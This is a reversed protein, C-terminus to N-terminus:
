ATFRMGDGSSHPVLPRDPKCHQMQQYLCSRPCANVGRHSHRRVDKVQDENWEGVYM